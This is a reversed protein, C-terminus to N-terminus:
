KSVVSFDDANCQDSTSLLCLHYDCNSEILCDKGDCYVINLNDFLDTSFTGDGIIESCLQYIDTRFYNEIELNMCITTKAYEDVCKWVECDSCPM